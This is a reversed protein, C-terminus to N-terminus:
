ATGVPPLQLDEEVEPQTEDSRLLDAIASGIGGLFNSGEGGGGGQGQGILAGLASFLGPNIGQPAGSPLQMLAALSSPITPGGAQGAQLAQLGLQGESLAANQAQSLFQMAQQVANAQGQQQFQAARETLRADALAEEEALREELAREQFAPITSFFTGRRAASGAIEGARRGREEERQEALTDRISQIEESGFPSPQALMREIVAGLNELGIAETGLPGVNQDEAPAPTGEPPPGAAGEDPAGGGAAGGAAGGTAGVGTAGAGGAAGPGAAGAGAAAAQERARRRIEELDVQPRAPERVTGRVLARGVPAAEGRRPTAVAGGREVSRRDGPVEEVRSVDGIRRGDPSRAELFTSRTRGGGRDALAGPDRRPLPDVTAQIMGESGETSVRDGSLNPDAVIPETTPLRGQVRDREAEAARARELRIRREEEEQEQLEAARTAVRTPEVDFITSAM